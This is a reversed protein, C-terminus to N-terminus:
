IGAVDSGHDPESYGMGVLQDGAIIGPLIRQKQEDTGVHNVVGAIMIAVALGDYPAGAKELENFLMWLEVPDGKGMGPVARELLGEQALARNLPRCLFTGTQHQRDIEEQTVTEAIIRRITRRRDEVDPPLTFDM